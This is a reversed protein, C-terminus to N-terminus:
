NTFTGDFASNIIQVHLNDLYTKMQEQKKQIDNVKMSIFQFISNTKELESIIKEQSKIPPIPIELKKIKSSNVAAQNIWKNCMQQFDRKLWRSRLYFLLWEPKIIKPNTRIRTLHNSYLCLEEHDFLFSKGVLNESNTNNFVVDGKKLTYKKLQDVTPSIKRLLDFNLTFNTGINNMRLHIVGDSVNKNGQAFGPLIEESIEELPKIHWEKPPNDLHMKTAFISGVIKNSLLFLNQQNKETHNFIIKKQEFLKELMNDLKKVIKQQTNKDPFPVQLTRLSDLRIMNRSSSPSVSKVYEITKSARLFYILYETLIKKSDTKIGINSQSINCTDIKRTVKAISNSWHKSMIKSLVIDDFNLESKDFEASKEKTLYKVHNLKIQNNKLDSIRIFPIGTSVYNTPSIDFIGKMINLTLDELCESKWGDPIIIQSL